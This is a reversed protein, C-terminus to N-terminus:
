ICRVDSSKMSYHMRLMTAHCIHLQNFLCRGRNTQGTGNKKHRLREDRDETGIRARTSDDARDADGGRDSRRGLRHTEIDQGNACSCDEGAERPGVHRFEGHIDVGADPTVFRWLVDDDRQFM